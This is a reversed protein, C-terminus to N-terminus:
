LPRIQTSETSKSTTVSKLRMGLMIPADQKTIDEVTYSLASIFHRRLDVTCTVRGSTSQQMKYEGGSMPTTLNFTFEVEAVQRTEDAVFSALRGTVTGQAGEPIASIGSAKLVGAPVSWTEGTKKEEKPWWEARDLFTRLEIPSAVPGDPLHARVQPDVPGGSVLSRTWGAEGKTFEFVTNPTYISTGSSAQRAITFTVHTADAASDTPSQIEFTQESQQSTNSNYDETAKVNDTNHYNNTSQKSVAFRLPGRSFDPSKFATPIPALSIIGTDVEKGAVLALKRTAPQYGALRLTLEAPGDGDWSMALPTKGLSKGALRVEAGQPVSDIRVSVPKFEWALALPTDRGVNGELRQSQYGPFEAQLTVPGLPIKELTQAGKGQHTAGHADTLTWQAQEPKVDVSLAGDLILMQARTTTIERDLTAQAEAAQAVLTAASEVQRASMLAEAQVRLTRAQHRSVQSELWDRFAAQAAIEAQLRRFAPTNRGTNAQSREDGRLDNLKRETKRVEQEVAEWALRLNALQAQNEAGLKDLRDQEAKAAAALRVKEDEDAQHKKEAALKAETELRAKEAAAAANETRTKLVWWGGAGLAALAILAVVLFEKGSGSKTKPAAPAPTSSGVRLSAPAGSSAAPKATHQGENETRQRQLVPLSSGDAALTLTEFAATIQELSERYKAKLGPTPAKAIKDEFRTRLDLFRAELQEPTADAPVELLKAAETPTM